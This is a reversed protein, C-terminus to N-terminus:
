PQTDVIATSPVPLDDCLYGIFANSDSPSDVLLWFEYPIRTSYWLPALLSAEDELGLRGVSLGHCGSNRFAEVLRPFADSLPLGKLRLPVIAPNIAHAAAIEEPSDTDLFIQIQNGWDFSIFPEITLHVAEGMGLFAPRVPFPGNIIEGNFFIKPLGLRTGPLRPDRYAVSGSWDPYREHVRVWPPILGIENTVLFEPKGVRGSSIAGWLDSGKWPLRSCGLVKPGAAIEAFLRTYLETPSANLCAVLLLRDNQGCGEPLRRAIWHFTGGSVVETLGALRLVLESVKGGRVLKFQGSLDKPCDDLTIEHNAISETSRGCFIFVRVLDTIRALPQWDLKPDPSFFARGSSLNELLVRTAEDCFANCEM